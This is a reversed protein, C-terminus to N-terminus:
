GLEAPAESAERAIEGERSGSPPPLAMDAENGSAKLADLSERLISVAFAAPLSFSHM